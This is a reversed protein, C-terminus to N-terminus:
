SRHNNLRVPLNFRGLLIKIRERIREMMRLPTYYKWLLVKFNVERSVDKLFFKRLIPIKWDAGIARKNKNVAQALEVPFFKLSGSAVAKNILTEGEISNVLVVSVGRQDDFEKPVGWFDGLTIDAVRPLKQFACNFCSEMLSLHYVLSLRSFPDASLQVTHKKGSESKASVTQWGLLKSRFSYEKVAEGNFLWHLYQHFVKVSPVGHCIVECTVLYCRSEQSCLLNLGAIQCPTGSYLVPVGSECLQAAEKLTDGISSQVYKAGRMGLLGEHSTAKAHMPTWNPGWCCGFVVGGENLFAKALESFVGGSSSGIRLDSDESWSAFAQPEVSVSRKLRGCEAAIVPCKHICLKCNNCKSRDVMPRYFGASSLSLTLAARPCTAICVTCGTCRDDHVIDVVCTEEMKARKLGM